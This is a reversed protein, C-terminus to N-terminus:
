LVRRVRPAPKGGALPNAVHQPDVGAVDFLLVQLAIAHEVAISDRHILEEDAAAIVQREHEDLVIGHIEGLRQDAASFILEVRMLVDRGIGAVDDLFDVARAAHHGM